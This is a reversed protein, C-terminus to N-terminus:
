TASFWSSFFPFDEIELGFFMKMVSYLYDMLWMCASAIMYLVYRIGGVVASGIENAVWLQHIRAPSNILYNM